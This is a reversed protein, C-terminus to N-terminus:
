KKWTFMLGASFVHVQLFCKKDYEFSLIKGRVRLIM